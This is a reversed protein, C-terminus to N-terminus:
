RSRRLLGIGLSLGSFILGMLGMLPILTGTKPLKAPAPAPTEPAPAPKAAAVAKPAPAPEEILLTQEMQPPIVVPASGTVQKEHSLVNSPVQTIVTASIENGPRVEFVTKEQGQIMFKQGKPVKYQKVSNDDGRLVITNPPNVSFVKGKITRITTVTQPVTTTTITRQLKMGPKLDRVGIEKGDVIGRASEPVTFHRVEGNEMKVVIENGDVVLVEGREVQAQRSAPGAKTETKTTELQASLIVASGVFVILVLLAIRLKQLNM